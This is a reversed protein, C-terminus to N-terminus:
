AGVILPHKYTPIKITVLEPGESISIQKSVILLVEGWGDTRDRRFGTYGIHYFNM